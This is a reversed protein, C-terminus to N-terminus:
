SQSKKPFARKAAFHLEVGVIGMLLLILGQLSNFSLFELATMTMLILSVLFYSGMRHSFTM